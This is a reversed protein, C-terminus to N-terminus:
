LQDTNAISTPLGDGGGPHLGGVSRAISRGFANASPDDDGISLSQQEDHRAALFPMGTRFCVVAVGDDDDDGCGVAADACGYVHGGGAGGSRLSEDRDGCGGDGRSVGGGGECLLWCTYDSIKESGQGSLLEGAHYCVTKFCM